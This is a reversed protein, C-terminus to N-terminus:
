SSTAKADLFDPLLAFTRTCRTRRHRPAGGDHARRRADHRAGRGAERAELAPPLDFALGLADDRRGGRPRDAKARIRQRAARTAPSRLVARRGRRPRSPRLHRRGPVRRPADAHAHRRPRVVVRARRARRRRARQEATRAGGEVRRLRGLRRLRRPRRRVHHQRDGAGGVPRLVAAARGPDARAPRGVNARLVESSHTSRFTPSAAAPAVPGLDSANNVLLDLGGTREAAALLARRHVADTVDGPVPIVARDSRHPQLAYPTSTAATSSSPGATTSSTNPSARGLGRSGGTIIATTM